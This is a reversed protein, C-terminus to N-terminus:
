EGSEAQQTEASVESRNRPPGGARGAAWLRLIELKQQGKLFYLDSLTQLRDACEKRTSERWSDKSVVVLGASMMWEAIAIGIEENGRFSPHVHDVLLDNGPIGSRSLNRLLEDANLIPINLRAATTTMTESLASTMRLPCVDEDCARRLSENAASHEYNALQLQGLEYWSAAFRPDLEVAQKALLVSDSLSSRSRDRAQGLLQGIEQRVHEPTESSFQSKFPPCDALNEPPKVLLLPVGRNTCLQSMRELNFCFHRVVTASHDDDRQYSDLGGDHNLITDVEESLIARQVSNGQSQAAIQLASNSRSSQFARRMLRVLRFQDSLSGLSRVMGSQERIPAYTVDELFENHGECFVVLDPEYNLCEQLVPVLRYSAYSVGGCNVVTWEVDPAANKLAAQLCTPFSTEISYPHGQVTSGGIVFIRFENASKVRPFEVRRFFGLRRESTQYKSGDASLEFLPRTATFEVFPDDGVEPPAIGIAVCALEAAAVLAIGLVMAAVRFM